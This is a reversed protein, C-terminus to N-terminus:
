ILARFYMHKQRRFQKSKISCHTPETSGSILVDESSHVWFLQQGLAWALERHADGKFYTVHVSLSQNLCKPDETPFTNLAVLLKLKSWM